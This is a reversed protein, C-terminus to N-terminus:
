LRLRLIKPPVCVNLGCCSGPGTEWCRARHTDVERQRELGTSGALGEAGEAMQEGEADLLCEVILISPM